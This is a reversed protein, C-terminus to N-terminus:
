MQLRPRFARRRVAAAVGRPPFSTRRWNTSPRGSAAARTPSSGTCDRWHRRGSGRRLRVCHHPLRRAQLRWPLGGSRRRGCCSGPRRPTTPSKPLGDVEFVHASGSTTGPRAGGTRHRVPHAARRGEARRRVRGMSEDADHEAIRAHVLAGTSRALLADARLAPWSTRPAGLRLAADYAALGAARGHERAMDLATRAPDASPMTRRSRRAGRTAAAVAGPPAQHRGAGSATCTPGASTSWRLGPAPAGMELVDLLTTASSTRRRTCTSRRPASACSHRM